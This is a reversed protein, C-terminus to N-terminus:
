NPPKAYFAYMSFLKFSYQDFNFQIIMYEQYGCPRAEHM